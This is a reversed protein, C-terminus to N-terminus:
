NQGSKPPCTMEIILVCKKGIEKIKGTLNPPNGGRYLLLVKDISPEASVEPIGSTLLRRIKKRKSIRHWFRGSSIFSSIVGLKEWESIRASCSGNQPMASPRIKKRGNRQVEETAANRLGLESSLFPNYKAAERWTRSIM